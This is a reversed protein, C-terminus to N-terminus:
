NCDFHFNDVSWVVRKLNFSSIAKACGECPKALGSVMKKASPFPKKMRAVYLTSRALIDLDIRRLSNKIADTEAHLYISDGNRGFKAQFPHTKKRNFGYSIIQKKYVICAALNARTESNSDEALKFLETMISM